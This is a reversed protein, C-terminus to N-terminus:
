KGSCYYDYEHLYKPDNTKKVLYELNQCASKINGDNFDIRVLLTIADISGKKKAENLYFKGLSVNKEAGVGELYSVGVFCLGNKNGKEAAKLFYKFSEEYNKLVHHVEGIGVLGDVIGYENAKQYYEIAKIYDPPTGISNLYCNAVEMMAFPESEAAKKYYEFAKQPDKKFGIGKM